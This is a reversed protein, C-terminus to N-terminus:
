ELRWEIAVEEWSGIPQNNSDRAAKFRWKRKITNLASRDLAAYGSSSTIIVQAAKGREDIEVRLITTVGQVGASRASRPYPPLPGRILEASSGQRAGLSPSIEPPVSKDPSPQSVEKVLEPEPTADVKPRDETQPIPTQTPEEVEPKTEEPEAV